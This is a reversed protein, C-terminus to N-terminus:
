KSKAAHQKYSTWVYEKGQRVGWMNDDGHKEVRRYLAKYLTDVGPFPYLILEDMSTRDKVENYQSSILEHSFGAEKPKDTRWTGYTHRSLKQM